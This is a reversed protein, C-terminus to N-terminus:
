ITPSSLATQKVVRGVMKLVKSPEHHSSVDNQAAQMMGEEVADLALSSRELVILLYKRAIPRDAPHILEWWRRISEQVEAETKEGVVLADILRYVKSKIAQYSVSIEQPMPDGYKTLRVHAIQWGFRLDKCRLDKQSQLSPRFGAFPIFCFGSYPNQFYGYLNQTNEVPCSVRKHGINREGTLRGIEKALNLNCDQGWFCRNGSIKWALGLGFTQARRVLQTGWRLM